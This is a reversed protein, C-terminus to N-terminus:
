TSAAVEPVAERHALAVIAHQGAVYPAHSTRLPPPAREGPLIFEEPAGPRTSEEIAQELRAVHGAAIAVHGSDVARRRPRVPRAPHRGAARQDIRYTEALLAGVSSDLEDVAGVATIRLGDKDVRSGDGLGTTRSDRHSTVIRSLRHGMTRPNRHPSRRDDDIKSRNDVPAAQSLLDAM